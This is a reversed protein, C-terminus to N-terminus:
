SIMETISHIVADGKSKDVGITEQYQISKNGKTRKGHNKM